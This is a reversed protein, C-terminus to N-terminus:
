VCLSRARPSASFIASCSPAAVSSTQVHAPRPAHTARIGSRDATSTTDPAQGNRSAEAAAAQPRDRRSRARAAVLAARLVKWGLSSRARSVCCCRRWPAACRRAARFGARLVFKGAAHIVFIQTSARAGACIAHTPPGPHHGGPPRGRAPRPTVPEWTTGHDPSRMISGVHVDAYIWDHDGHSHGGGGGRSHDHGGPGHNHGGPWLSGETTSLETEAEVM